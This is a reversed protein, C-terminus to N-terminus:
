DLRRDGDSEDPLHIVEPPPSHVIAAALAPAKARLAYVLDILFDAVIAPEDKDENFDLAEIRDAIGYLAKLAAHESGPTKAVDDVLSDWGCM